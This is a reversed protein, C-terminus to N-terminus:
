IVQEASVENPDDRPKQSFIAAINKSMFSKFFQSATEFIENTTDSGDNRYTYHEEADTDQTVTTTDPESRKPETSITDEVLPMLASDSAAAPAPLDSQSLPRADLLTVDVTTTDTAEENTAGVDSLLSEESKEYPLLTVYVPPQNRVSDSVKDIAIDAIEVSILDEMAAESPVPLTPTTLLVEAQGPIVLSESRLAGEVVIMDSTKMSTLGEIATESPVPVTPTTLLAEAQGPVVSSESQTLKASIGDEGVISKESITLSTVDSMLPIAQQQELKSLKSPDAGDIRSTDVEEIVLVQGEVLPRADTESVIIPSPLEENTSNDQLLRISLNLIPIAKSADKGAYGGTAGRLSREKSIHVVNAFLINGQDAAIQPATTIARNKPFTLSPISKMATSSLQMRTDNPVIHRNAVAQLIERSSQSKTRILSKFLTVTMLLSLSVAITALLWKAKQM